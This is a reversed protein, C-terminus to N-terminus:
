SCFLPLTRRKDERENKNGGKKSLKLNNRLLFTGWKKLRQAPILPFSVFAAKAERESEDGWEM